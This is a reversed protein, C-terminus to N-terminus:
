ISELNRFTCVDKRLLREADKAGTRVLGVRDEDVRRRPGSTDRSSADASIFLFDTVHSLTMAFEVFALFINEIQYITKSFIKIHLLSFQPYILFIIVVIIRNSQFVPDEFHDVLM